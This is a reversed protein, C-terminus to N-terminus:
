MNANIPMNYMNIWIHNCSTYHPLVTYAHESNL